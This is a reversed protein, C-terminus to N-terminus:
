RKDFCAFALIIKKIMKFNQLQLWKMGYRKADEDNEVNDINADFANLDFTLIANSENWGNEAGGLIMLKNQKELHVFGFGRFNSQFHFVTKFQNKNCNWIIHQCNSIWNYSGIFHIYDNVFVIQSFKLPMSKDYVTVKNTQLNVGFLIAANGYIYVEKKWENYAIRPSSFKGVTKEPYELVCKWCESKTNYGFIGYGSGLTVMNTAIIFEYENISIANSLNLRNNELEKWKSWVGDKRKDIIRYRRTTLSEAFASTFKFREPFSYM